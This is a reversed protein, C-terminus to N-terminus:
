GFLRSWFGKTPPAAGSGVARNDARELVEFPRGDDGVQPDIDYRFGCLTRAVEVPVEFLHDFADEPDGPQHSGNAARVAEFCAPLRGQADLHMLGQESQHSVSWVKRGAAWGAAESVMVHEEVFCTVVEAGRSLPGLVANEALAMSRNNVVVYWGSPLEVATVASEPVEERRGTSRLNLEARVADPSKGKVALWFLSYGM